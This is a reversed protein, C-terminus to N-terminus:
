YMKKSFIKEQARGGGGGGGREREREKRGERKEIVFLTLSM